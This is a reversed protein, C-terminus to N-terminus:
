FPRRETIEGNIQMDRAIADYDIYYRLNEPVVTTENILEGAYDSATCQLSLNRRRSLRIYVVAKILGTAPTEIYLDYRQRTSETM